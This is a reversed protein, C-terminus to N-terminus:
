FNDDNKPAPAKPSAAPQPQTRPPASAAPQAAPSTQPRPPALESKHIEPAIVNKDKDLLYEQHRVVDGDIIKLVHRDGRPEEVVPVVPTPNPTPTPSAEPKKEEVKAVTEAPEEESNGTRLQEATLRPTEIKSSDSMKRLMLRMRGTEGALTVKLVDEPKLAVIIVQAPTAQGNEPRNVNADAALVLVNELIVQSYTTKEDAKRVTHIIDVRSLPLSAWGAAISEADVRIGVARYGTPPDMIQDKDNVLDAPTIHDGARLSRKMTKNKLVDISALDFAGVPELGKAFPKEVFWDEPKKLMEGVPLPKKTVLVVVQEQDDGGGREALLRSTMYSAGLGCTIAVGMLILAKPKM